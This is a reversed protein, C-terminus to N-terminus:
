LIIVSNDKQTQLSRAENTKYVKMVFCQITCTQTVDPVFGWATRVRVTM